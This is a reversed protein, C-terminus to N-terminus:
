VRGSLVHDIKNKLQEVDFPKSIYSAKTRSLFATTDENMVDGTIFVVKRASSKAAKQLHKFIEIGSKGPLKIDLLIVDFDESGLKELADNGNDIVVVKHGEESLMESLFQQVIPEDDVVLIRAGSVRESEVTPGTLKLQEAGIVIPLEVFFTAGEGLRSEAYIKGGHLTIIGYSVSLGLGTGQGVERTTFFPDFLKDLNERSIGPGDDKFSILITDNIRETKVSLNGRGHAIIMEKEANLIINLFVQQLQGSDAITVPLDPDLRTTLKISSSEMAYTRMALTTEIIKNINVSTREPKYQRAFSLMRDTIGAVRLAGEHILNIDGRIDEPIDKMLLLDSFGIVGTLPNNIEHAIGSAMEGVTALRSTLSLEQQLQKEKEEAKKRETIDSIVSRSAVVQGKKDTVPAVSLLGYVERGDKRLYIMEEDEIQFGSNFKGLLTKAKAVCEPAYLEIVPKDTLEAASYGLWVQAAKNAEQILGYIGVSFYAVPANEYLDRYREKSEKLAEEARKRETVEKNLNDMSTTTRVLDEAMKNFSSALRGVEDRGSVEVRQSFDGGSIAQASIALAEIPRVIHRATFLALIISFALAASIVTALVVFNNIALELADSVPQEAVVVLEQNGFQITERAFIVDTGSLGEARGDVEPLEMTTGRLVMSPHRHAVVLGAQDTVYIEGESASEIDNLLDWIAKFRLEAVLVSVIEGSSRNYVPVSITALPERITDDFRISGSYTEGSIAPLLFEENGARSQLDDDLIVSTRSLRIQEQGESNLLALEQFTRQHVLTNSLISRQEKLELAGLGYVEDLCVLDNEWHEITRSIESGTSEAVKRQLVLSQRELTDFSSTGIVAGVIILPGVALGICILAFRLRLSNFM